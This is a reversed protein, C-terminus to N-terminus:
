SQPTWYLDPRKKMPVMRSDSPRSFKKNESQSSQMPRGILPGTCPECCNTFTDDKSSSARAVAATSACRPLGLFYPLISEAFSVRRVRDASKKSEHCARRSGFSSARHFCALFISSDGSADDNRLCLRRLIDADFGLERGEKTPHVHLNCESCCAEEQAQQCMGRQACNQACTAGNEQHTGKDCIALGQLTLHLQSLAVFKALRHKLPEGVLCLRDTDSRRMKM